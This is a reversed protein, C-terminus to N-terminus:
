MAGFQEALKPANGEDEHKFFVFAEAWGADRVRKCWDALEPKSYDKRRLRLYGYPATAVFPCEFDDSQAVCLAVGSERLAEYVDESFWTEHRFEMAARRKPPLAALFAQLRPLDKKMNPPLQFLTPGLQEGLEDANRFFYALADDVEKLRKIHTISQSAKLVFTFDRPVQGLWETLMERKPMRYFTNNIEVTRFHEAYYALMGKAPLTEPYFPGKWEKYSFGSTGVFLRV